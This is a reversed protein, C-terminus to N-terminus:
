FEVKLDPPIMTKKKNIKTKKYKNKALFMKQKSYMENQVNNKKSPKNSSKLIFILGFNLSIIIIADKNTSTIILSSYIVFDPNSNKFLRRSISIKASNKTQKHKKNIILPDFRISPNLPKNPM